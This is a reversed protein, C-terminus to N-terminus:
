LIIGFIMVLLFFNFYIDMISYFKKSIKHNLFFEINPRNFLYVNGKLSTIIINGTIKSQTICSIAKQFGEFNNNKKIIIDQIYIIKIENININYIIKYLKIM